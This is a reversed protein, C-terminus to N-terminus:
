WCTAMIDHQWSTTSVLLKTYYYRVSILDNRVRLFIWIRVLNAGREIIITTRVACIRLALCGRIHGWVM